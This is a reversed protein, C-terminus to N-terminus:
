GVAEYQANFPRELVSYICTREASLALDGSLPEVFGQFSSIEGRCVLAAERYLSRM